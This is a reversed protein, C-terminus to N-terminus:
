ELEQRAFSRPERGALLWGIGAAALPTGLALPVLQSVPIPVLRGLDAHYSAVLAVYAGTLGLIVGPLALGAATTATLARRTRGRAGTATLTRLDRRAESRILGVAIAVIAM